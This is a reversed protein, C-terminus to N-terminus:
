LFDYICYLYLHLTHRYSIMFQDCQGEGGGLFSWKDILVKGYVPVTGKDTKCALKQYMKAESVHKDATILRGYLM